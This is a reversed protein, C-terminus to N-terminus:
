RAGRGQREVPAGGAANVAGDYGPAMMASLADADAVAQGKMWEDTRELLKRGEDGGLLRGLQRRAATAHLAMDATECGYIAERLLMLAQDREGRLFAVGARLMRAPPMAWAAREREISRADREAAALLTRREEPHRAAVALACRGHMEITRIRVTGIRTLHARRMEPLRTEVLALAERARGEYLDAHVLGVLEYFHELHCGKQSWTKMAEGIDRRAEEPKGQVLWVLSAYGARMSVSAYVDGREHADRLYLPQRWCLERLEGLYFLAMMAFHHMTAQEWSAGPVRDRFMDAGRDADDVTRRFNGGLYSSIASNAITYAISQPDGSREAIARARALNEDVRLAAGIGGTAQYGAAVALARSVRSPEGARLAYLVARAQFVAGYIHDSLGLSFAISWCVDVRTLDRAPVLSPDRERFRTGRLALLLRLFVLQVLAQLPSRPYQLGLLALVERVAAIGEDFRGARLFQEAAKRRLDLAEAAPAREAAKAYAAAAVAGRGANALADGLRARIVRRKPDGEPTLKLAREWCAAARDFALAESAQHAAAVAYKAARVPEGALAWHLSLAEGDPWRAAELALALRRHCGIRERKSLTKVVAERVREHYPEIRDSARGGSTLVMHAVRLQAVVRAFAAMEMGTAYAVTEQTMPRGAVAVLELAKRASLELREIRTHLAEQLDLKPRVLLATDEPEDGPIERDEAIAAHRALEDIFLPHGQAERAIAEAHRARHPAVLELLSSALERADAASLRGLAVRRAACPLHSEIDAIGVASMVISGETAPADRVTGVLLLAPADPPRLLETLLSLSDADAWQLDDIAIVLPRRAAIRSLVHRLGEFARRRLDHPDRSEETAAFAFARSRRLVPFVQVLPGLRQPALDAAHEDPLAALHRALEDIVGDLGKYPVQEREYCRGALVVADPHTALVHECFHHVLCSKGVGSEGDVLVVVSSGARADQLARDLAELEGARGVFPASRTQTSAASAPSSKSPPSSSSPARRELMRLVDAATPRTAPDSRMLKTCLADLDAPVGPARERAPVPVKQQKEMLITLPAGDFPLVGTLAEYLVVGLAYCDAEPGVTKSTAQEPAMYAPTGTIDGDISPREAVDAVLGFDLLVVRGVPTVRVNSPKIDRHVKGAQHLADLGSALQPLTARLRAEDVEGSPARVPNSNRRMFKMPTDDISGNATSLREREVVLAVDEAPMPPRPRVYALFDYGDVLEMTFFWQHGEAILEGLTVLNRHHLDQLARFERKFRLLAQASAKRSITAKLTKLAVKANRERDFAEYVVGMGGEGLPRLLEFRDPVTLEL